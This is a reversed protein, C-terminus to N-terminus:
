TKEGHLDESHMTIASQFDVGIAKWDSELAISDTMLAHEASAVKTNTLTCGLDLVSAMGTIFSKISSTMAIVAGM